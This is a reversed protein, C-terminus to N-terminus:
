LYLLIFNTITIIMISYFLIQLEESKRTVTERDEGGERLKRLKKQKNRRLNPV